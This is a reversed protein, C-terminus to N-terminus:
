PNHYQLQANAHVHSNVAMTANTVFGLIYYGDAPPVFDGSDIELQADAAPNTHTCTSGSVAAGITYIVLGAGGSTSPRTVPHLGFIFTGTFPAVDNTNLVSRVRLRTAAGNVSPYDAAEYRIIALPYLTGTGSVAGPDGNGMGYTGAVKGAIHSASAQLITRYSANPVAATVFATSASSTDNDGATATPVTITAGTFAHTGTWTYNATEDLQTPGISDPQVGVISGVVNLTAGDWRIEGTTGGDDTGLLYGAGGSFDPFDAYPTTDLLVTGTADPLTWTRDATLTTPDAVLTGEIGGGSSRAWQLGNFLLKGSSIVGAVDSYIGCLTTSFLSSSQFSLTGGSTVQLNEFVRTPFQNRGAIASYSKSDGSDVIWPIIETLNSDDTRYLTSLDISGSADAQYVLLLSGAADGTRANLEASPDDIDAVSVATIGAPILEVLDILYPDDSLGSGSQIAFPTGDYEFQFNLPEGQISEVGQGCAATACLLLVLGLGAFRPAFHLVRRLWRRLAQIM